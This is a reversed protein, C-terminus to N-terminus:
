WQWGGTRKHDMSVTATAPYLRIESVVARVVETELGGRERGLFGGAPDHLDNVLGGPLGVTTFQYLPVSLHQWPLGTKKLYLTYEPM